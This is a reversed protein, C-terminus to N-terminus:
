KISNDIKGNPLMNDPHAIGEEELQYRRCHCWNDTTQCYKQAWGYSIQGKRELRRLPCVAYWRCAM